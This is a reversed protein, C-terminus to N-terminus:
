RKHAIPATQGQFRDDKGTGCLETQELLTTVKLLMLRAPKDVGARLEVAVKGFNAM